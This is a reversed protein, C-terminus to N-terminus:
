WYKQLCFQPHQTRPQIRSSIFTNKEGMQAMPHRQYEFYKNLSHHCNASKDLKQSNTYIDGPPPSWQTLLDIHIFIYPIKKEKKIQLYPKLTQHAAFCM